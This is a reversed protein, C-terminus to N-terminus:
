VMGLKHACVWPKLGSQKYLLLGYAINDAKKMVDYGLKKANKLHAKLNIQMIGVDNTPSTLVKGSKNFHRLGSECMLVKKLDPPIMSLPDAKVSPKVVAKVPPKALIAEKRVAVQPILPKQM